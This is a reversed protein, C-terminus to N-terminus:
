PLLCTSTGSPIYSVIDDNTVVDGFGVQWWPLAIVNIDATDQCVPDTYGDLYVYATITTSGQAIGTMNILENFPDAIEIDPGSVEECPTPPIPGHECVAAILGDDVEYEINDVDLGHPNLYSYRYDDITEGVDLTADPITIDCTAVVEVECYDNPGCDTFGPGITSCNLGTLEWECWPNGTCYNSENDIANCTVYYDGPTDFSLDEECLDSDSTCFDTWSPPYVATDWHMRTRVVTGDTDNSTATFTHLEDVELPTTPCNTIECNPPFLIPMIGFSIAQVDFGGGSTEGYLPFTRSSVTPSYMPDPPTYTFTVRSFSGNGGNVQVQQRWPGYYVDPDPVTDNWGWRRCAGGCNAAGGWTTDRLTSIDFDSSFSDSDHYRNIYVSDPVPPEDTRGLNYNYETFRDDYEWELRPCNRVTTCQDDGLWVMGTKAQLPSFGDITFNGSGGSDKGGSYTVTGGAIRPDDHDYIRAEGNDWVGNGNDDEFFWIDVWGQSPPNSCSDCCESAGDPDCYPDGESHPGNCTGPWCCVGPCSPPPTEGPAPTNTPAPETYVCSFGSINCGGPNWIEGCNPSCSTQNCGGMFLPDGICQYLCDCPDDIRDDCGAPWCEVAREVGCNWLVGGVSTCAAKTHSLNGLLGLLGLFVVAILFHKVSKLLKKM